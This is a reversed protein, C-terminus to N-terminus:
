YWATNQDQDAYVTSFSAPYPDVNSLKFIISTFVGDRSCAVYETAYETNGINKGYIISDIYNVKTQGTITWTLKKIKIRDNNKKSGYGSNVAFIM